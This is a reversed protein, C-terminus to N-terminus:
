KSSNKDMEDYIVINLPGRKEAEWLATAAQSLLEEASLEPGGPDASIGICAAFEFPENTPTLQRGGVEQLLRQAVTRAGTVGTEPMVVLYNGQYHGPMDVERLSHHLLNAMVLQANELIDRSPTEAFRLALYLLALPSPYRRSRLIERALLMELMRQPYLGSESNLRTGQDTM